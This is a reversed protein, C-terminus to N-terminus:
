AKRKGVPEEGLKRQLDALAAELASVRPEYEKVVEEVTAYDTNERWRHEV